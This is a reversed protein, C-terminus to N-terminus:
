PLIRLLFPEKLYFYHFLFVACRIRQRAKDAKASTGCGRRKGGFMMGWVYFVREDMFIMEDRYFIACLHCLIACKQCM